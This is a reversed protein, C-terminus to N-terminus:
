RIIIIWLLRFGWAGLWLYRNHSGVSLNTRHTPPVEFGLGAGRHAGEILGPIDAVVMSEDLGLRVVGLNPVLTTFPYDAIKPDRRLSERYSLPSAEM